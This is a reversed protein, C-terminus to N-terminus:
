AISYNIKYLFINNKDYINTLFPLNNFITINFDINYEDRLITRVSERSNEYRYFFIYSLNYQKLEEYTIDFDTLGNTLINKFIKVTKIMSYEYDESGTIFPFTILIDKDKSLCPIWQGIFDNLIYSGNEVYDILFYIADLENDNYQPKSYYEVSIFFPTLFILSFFTVTSYKVVRKRLLTSVKSFLINVQLFKLNKLWYITRYIFYGSFYTYLIILFIPILRHMKMYYNSGPVKITLFQFLILIPIHIILFYIYIINGLTRKEINQIKKNKFLSQSYLFFGIIGFVAGIYFTKSIFLFKDFPTKGYIVLKQSYSYKENIFYLSYKPLLSEVIFPDLIIALLSSFSFITIVSNFFYFIWSSTEKYFIHKYTQYIFFSAIFTITILFTFIHLFFSFITLLLYVLFLLNKEKLDNNNLITVSIDLQIIFVTLGVIQSFPYWKIFYWLHPTLLLFSFFVSNKLLEDKIHINTLRFFSYVLFLYCNKFFVNLFIATDENQVLIQSITYFYNAFIHALITHSRLYENIFSPVIVQYLNIKTFTWQEFILKIFLSHYKSDDQTPIQFKFTSYLVIILFLSITIIKPSFISRIRNWSFLDRITRWNIFLYVFIILLSFIQLSYIFIKGIHPSFLLPFFSLLLVSIYGAIFINNKKEQKFLFSSLFNFLIGYGIINFLFSMTTVFFEIVFM